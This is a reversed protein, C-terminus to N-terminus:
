PNSTLQEVGLRQQNIKVYAYCANYDAACVAGAQELTQIYERQGQYAARWYEEGQGAIGPHSDANSSQGEDNGPMSSVSNSASQQRLSDALRTRYNDISKKDANIQVGYLSGIHQIDAIHQADKEAAQQTALALTEANHKEAQLANDRLLTTTKLLNDKAENADHKYYTGRAYLVGFILLIALPKWYARIFQIAADIM